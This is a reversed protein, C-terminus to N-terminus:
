VRHEDKRAIPLLQIDDTVALDHLEITGLRAANKGEHFLTVPGAGAHRKMKMRLFVRNEVDHFAVHIEGNAIAADGSIRTSCYEQGATHGMRRTRTLTARSGQNRHKGGATFFHEAFEMSDRGSVGIAFLSLGDALSEAHM